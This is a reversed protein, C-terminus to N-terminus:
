PERRSFSFAGPQIPPVRIQAPHGRVTSVRIPVLARPAPHPVIPAPQGCSRIPPVRIQAPSASQIPPKCVPHLACLAAGRCLSSRSLVSVPAHCLSCQAGSVSLSLTGPPRCSTGPGLVSLPPLAGPGSVSGSVCLSLAGPGSVSLAPGRCSRSLAPVRCLSRRPGVCLAGPGSVSFPGRCLLAGPGLVSLAPLAPFRCLSRSLQQQDEGSTATRFSVGERWCFFCQTREGLQTGPPTRKPQRKRTGVERLNPRDVCTRPMHLSASM